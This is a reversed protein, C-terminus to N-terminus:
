KCETPLRQNLRMVARSERDLEDQEANSKREQKVKHSGNVKDWFTRTLLDQCHHEHLKFPRATLLCFNTTTTSNTCIASCLYWLRRRQTLTQTESHTVANTNTHPQPRLSMQVTLM